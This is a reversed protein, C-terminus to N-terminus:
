IRRINLHFKVEEFNKSDGRFEAKYRDFLDISLCRCTENQIMCKM